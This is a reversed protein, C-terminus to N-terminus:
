TGGPPKADLGRLMEVLVSGVRGLSEASVGDLDDSSTHWRPGPSVRAGYQFDILALIESVGREQFPTHDDIVSMAQRTDILPPVGLKTAAAEFRDLLARSSNFDLALNLDRDGVMDVLILARLKALEGDDAMRKALVKSGYLGDEADISAGFAEEGDVFALALPLPPQDGATARALELLVAVGSAGDNAGVFKQDGLNKTDYHTILLVPSSSANRRAILNTMAIPKGKPPGARFNEAEVLWGAQRLRERILARAQEAGNSGAPRPGIRVLAELDRFARAGDFAVPAKASVAPPTSAERCGALALWLAVAIRGGRSLAPVTGARAVLRKRRSV